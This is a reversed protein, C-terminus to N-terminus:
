KKRIKFIISYKKMLDLKILELLTIMECLGERNLGKLQIGTIPPKNNEKRIVINGFGEKM